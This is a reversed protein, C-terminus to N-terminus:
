PATSGRDPGVLIEVAHDGAGVLESEVDEDVLDPTV